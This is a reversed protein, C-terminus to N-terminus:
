WARHGGSAKVGTSRTPLKRPHVQDSEGVTPKIARGAVEVDIRPPRDPPREDGMSVAVVGPRSGLDIEAVLVGRREEFLAEAVDRDLNNTVALREPLVTDFYREVRGTMHQPRRLNADHAAALDPDSRAVVLQRVVFDRRRELRKAAVNEDGLEM